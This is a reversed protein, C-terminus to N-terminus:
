TSVGRYVAILKKLNSHLSNIKQINYQKFSHLGKPIAIHSIKCFSSLIKYSFLSDTILLSKPNIVKGIIRILDNSSPKGM